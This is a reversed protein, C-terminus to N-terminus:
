NIRVEMELNQKILQDLTVGFIDSLHVLTPIDPENQANVWRGITQTSVELKEALDTYTMNKLRLLLKLNNSFYM